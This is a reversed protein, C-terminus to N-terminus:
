VAGWGDPAGNAAYRCFKSCLSKVLWRAAVTLVAPVARGASGPRSLRLGAHVPVSLWRPATKRNRTHALLRGPLRLVAPVLLPSRSRSRCPGDVVGAPREFAVVARLCARCFRELVATDGFFPHRSRSSNPM